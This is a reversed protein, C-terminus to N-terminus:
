ISRERMGARTFYATIATPAPIPPATMLALVLAPMNRQSVLTWDANIYRDDGVAVGGRNQHFGSVGNQAAGNAYSGFGKIWPDGNGVASMTGLTDSNLAAVEMHNKTVSFSTLDPTGYNGGSLLRQEVASSLSSSISRMAEVSQVVPTSTLQITVSQLQPATLGLFANELNQGTTSNSNSALLRSILSNVASSTTVDSVETVSLSLDKSGDPTVSATFLPSTSINSFSGSLSTGAAIFDAYIYPTGLTFTGSPVIRLTGNLTINAASVTPATTPTVGLALTGGAGQTYAAITNVSATSPLMLTGGTLKVVDNVGFSSQNGVVSGTVTGGTINFIDAGSLGIDGNIAGSNQDITIANYGSYIAWATGGPATATITGTNTLIGFLNYSNYIGYATGGNSATATITGSNTLGGYMEENNYIGYATGGSGTTATVMGINTLGGYTESNNYIGYATGNSGTTAGITGSNTLGNDIETDPYLGYAEGNNGATATVMGNNNFGGYVSESYIGYAEESNGTTAAVTAGTNNTLAGYVYNGNYIGYANSSNATATITGSNFLGSNTTDANDLGYAYGASSTVTITGSNILNSQTTSSVLGYDGGGAMVTITGSNTVDGSVTDANDLGYANGGSGATATITGNNTIGGAITQNNYIGKGLLSGSTTITGSNAMSGSITATNYIGYALAGGVTITGTNKVDGTITSSQSVSIGIANQGNGSTSITIQNNNNIDGGVSSNAVGIGASSGFDNTQSIRGNNTIDGTVTSSDASLSAAVNGTIVPTTNGNIVGASTNTINGITGNDIAIYNLTVANNIDAFSGPGVDAVHAGIGGLWTLVLNYAKSGNAVLSATFQASDTTVSTFSGSLTTYASIVNTYTHPTLFGGEQPSITLSGDLNDTFAAVRGTATGASQLVLNGSAGETYTGINSVNGTTPVILTGGTLNVQDASGGSIGGTVTGGNINLSDGHGSLEILGSISGANQNITLANSSNYIAYTAAITGTNTIGGMITGNNYIGFGQNTSSAMITGSNILSGTVTGGSVILISFADSGGNSTTAITGTNVVNGSVGDSHDVFIGIASNNNSESINIQSNNTINGGISSGGVILIGAAGDPGGIQSINGNNTINGTVTSAEIGIDFGISGSQYTNLELANSGDLLGSGANSINGISASSNLLIYDLMTSNNLDTFGGPGTDTINGAYASTTAISAVTIGVLCSYFKWM